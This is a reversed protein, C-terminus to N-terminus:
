KIKNQLYRRLFDLSSLAAQNQKRKITGGIQLTHHFIGNETALVNYLTIARDKNRLVQLNQDESHVGQYLQVLVIDMRSKSKFAEALKIASELEDKLQVNMGLGSFMTKLNQGYVSEELFTHGMCKASMLGHSITEVVYLKQGKRNLIEGIVDVLGPANETLGTIAFVPDGIRKAVDFAIFEIESEPFGPPFQLKTQNEDMGTRFGLQVEAPLNLNELREQIDSEGIGVTKITVLKSPEISFQENLIPRIKERFLQKMEFPVGPVFAFICHHHKIAFGPATGWENDLRISGQPLMAQKRNSDPIHRNRRTFFHTIQRYAEEDFELPLGFARSVAEATLDDVTPGLGGTCICFDARGSIEHLLAVLNELNDGVATHRTVTCGMTALQQSLWAANTDVTQGTIVENGQSFIEVNVAM